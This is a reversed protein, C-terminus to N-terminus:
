ETDLRSVEGLSGKGGIFILYEELPEVDVVVVLGLHVLLPAQNKSLYTGM